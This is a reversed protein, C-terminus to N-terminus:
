LLDSASLIQRINTTLPPVRELPLTWIPTTKGEHDRVM